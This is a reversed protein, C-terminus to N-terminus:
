ISCPLRSRGPAARPPLWREWDTACDTADCDTADAEADRVLRRASGAGSGAMGAISSWLMTDALRPLQDRALRDRPRPSAAGRTRVSGALM